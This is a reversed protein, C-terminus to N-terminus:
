ISFNNLDTVNDALSNSCQEFKGISRRVVGEIMNLFFLLFFTSFKELTKKEHCLSSCNKFSSTTKLLSNLLFVELVDRFRHEEPFADYWNLIFPACMQLQVVGIACWEGYAYLIKYNEEEAKIAESNQSSSIYSVHIVEMSFIFYRLSM